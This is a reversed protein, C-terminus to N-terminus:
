EVSESVLKQLFRHWLGQKEGKDSKPPKQNNFFLKIEDNHVEASLHQSINFEQFYWSKFILHEVKKPTFRTETTKSYLVEHDDSIPILEKELLKAGHYDNFDLFGLFMNPRGSINKTLTFVLYQEDTANSKTERLFAEQTRSIIDLIQHMKTESLAVEYDYIEGSSFMLIIKELFDHSPKQVNTLKNKIDKIDSNEESPLLFVFKNKDLSLCIIMINLEIIKYIRSSVGYNINLWFKFWAERAIRVTDIFSTTFENVVVAKPETKQECKLRLKAM